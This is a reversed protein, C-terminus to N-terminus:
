EPGTIRSDGTSSVRLGEGAPKSVSHRVGGGGRGSFGGGHPHYRSFIVQKGEVAGLLPGALLRTAPRILNM